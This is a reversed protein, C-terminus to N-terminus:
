PRPTRSGPQQRLMFLKGMLAAMESQRAVGLKEFVRRLVTRATNQTIGLTAAADAPATGSGVLAALRAEGLTLHFLDRVVAPDFPRSRAQDTVLVIVSATQLAPGEIPTRLPVIQLILSRDGDPLILAPGVRGDGATGDGGGGIGVRGLQQALARRAAGDGLELRGAALSLGGGLLEQATQNAFLVQRDADLVFVGCDIRDLAQAFGLREAEADMLRISLSLAREVHRSLAFLQEQLVDSYAPKDKDRLLSLIVSVEPHPSVPVAMGWLIGHPLLFQQYIPLTAIEDASFLQHDAQVDRHGNAIAHFVREARVDLHQWNRDYEQAMSVLQPSVIAGFRHNRHQYLLLAGRSDLLEAISRLAEPWRDPASAAAYIAEIVLDWAALHM